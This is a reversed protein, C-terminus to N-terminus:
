ERKSTNDKKIRSSERGYYGLYESVGEAKHGPDFEM